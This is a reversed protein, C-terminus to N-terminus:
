IPGKETEATAMREMTIGGRCSRASVTVNAPTEQPGAPNADRGRTHRENRQEEVRTEKRGRLEDIEKRTSGKMARKGRGEGCGGDGEGASRNGRRRRNM